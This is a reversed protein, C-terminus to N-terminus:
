NGPAAFGARLAKYPISTPAAWAVAAPGPKLMGGIYWLAVQSLGAYKDGAFLPKSDKWLSQHTHMGSGNDQYIPKPMFTVTKGYQHAVNRVIYKYIMMRDAASVLPQFRQDIECQGGTAVEHHHCEIELGCKEMTQVM